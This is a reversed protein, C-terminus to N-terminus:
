VSILIILIMSTADIDVKTEMTSTRIKKFFVIIDPTAILMKRKVIKEPKQKLTTPCFPVWCRM